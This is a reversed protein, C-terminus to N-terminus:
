AESKALAALVKDILRRDQDLVLITMVEGHPGTIMYSRVVEKDLKISGKDAATWYPLEHNAAMHNVGQQTSFLSSITLGGARKLGGM